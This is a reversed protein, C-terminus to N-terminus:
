GRLVSGAKEGEAEFASVKGNSRAPSLSLVFEVPEELAMVEHVAKPPFHVLAGPGVEGVEGEVAVRVRGRTVYIFQEENHWHPKSFSGPSMRLYGISSNRGDVWSAIAPTHSAQGEERRGPLDPHIRM